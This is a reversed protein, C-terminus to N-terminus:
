LQFFQIAPFSGFPVLSDALLGQEGSIVVFDGAQLKEAALDEPNIFLPAAGDLGRQTAEGFRFESNMLEVIRRCVLRYKRDEAYRQRHAESRRSRNQLM